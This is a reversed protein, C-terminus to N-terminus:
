EEAVAKMAQKALEDHVWSQSRYADTASEDCSFTVIPEKWADGDKTIVEKYGVAICDRIGAVAAEFEARPVKEAYINGEILRDYYSFRNKVGEGRSDLYVDAAEVLKEGEGGFGLIKWDSEEQTLFLFLTEKVAYKAWRKVTKYNKFRRVSIQPEDYNGAVVKEVDLKLNGGKVETIKGVLILDAQDALEFVTMKKYLEQSFALSTTLLLLALLFFYKKM